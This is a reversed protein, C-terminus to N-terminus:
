RYKCDRLNHLRQLIPLAVRANAKLVNLVHLRTVVDLEELTLPLCGNQGAHLVHMSAVRHDSSVTPPLPNGDTFTAFPHTQLKLSQM